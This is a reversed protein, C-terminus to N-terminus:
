CRGQDRKFSKRKNAHLLSGHVRRDFGYQIVVPKQSYLLDNEIVELSKEPLHKLKADSCQYIEQPMTTPTLEKNTGYKTTSIEKIWHAFFKHATIM